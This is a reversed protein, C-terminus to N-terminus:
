LCIYGNSAGSIFVRISYFPHYWFSCNKCSGQMFHHSIRLIEFVRSLKQWLPIKNEFAIEANWYLLIIIIILYTNVDIQPVEMQLNKSSLPLNWGSSFSIGNPIPFLLQGPFVNASVSTNRNKAENIWRKWNENGFSVFTGSVISGSTPKM